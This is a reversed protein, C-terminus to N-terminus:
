FCKMRASKVQEPDIALIVLGDKGDDIPLWQNQEVVDRKLNKLLDVPKIRDSKFPECPVNFLKSLAQGIVPLKVQFDTILIHEIADSKRRAARSALELESASLVADSIM